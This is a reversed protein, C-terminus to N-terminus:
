GGVDPNYYLVPLYLSIQTYSMVTHNTNDDESPMVPDKEFPHKLGLGHGLEHDITDWKSPLILLVDSSVGSGDSVTPYYGYGVANDGKYPHDIGNFRIVGEDGGV